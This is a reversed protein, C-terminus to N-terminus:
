NMNDIFEFEKHHHHLQQRKFKLNLDNLAQIYISTICYVTTQKCLNRIQLGVHNGLYCCQM